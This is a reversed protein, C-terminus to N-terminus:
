ASMHGRNLLVRDNMKDSSMTGAIDRPSKTSMQGRSLIQRDLPNAKVASFKDIEGINKGEKELKSSLNNDVIYFTHPYGHNVTCGSKNL